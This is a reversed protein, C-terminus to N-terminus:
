LRALLGTGVMAFSNLTSASMSPAMTRTFPLTLIVALNISPAEPLTKHPCLKSRSKCSTRTNCRSTARAIVLLTSTVSVGGPAPAGPSTGPNDIRFHMSVNEEALVVHRLGTLFPQAFGNLIEVESDRPIRRVGHGIGTQGFGVDPQRPEMHRRPFGHRLRFAGGFRRSAEVLREGARMRDQAENMEDVVPVTGRSLSRKQARELEIGRQCRRAQMARRVEGRLSSM